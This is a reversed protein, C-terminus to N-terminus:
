LYVGIGLTSFGSEKALRSLLEITESGYGSNQAQNDIVFMGIWLVEVSPYGHYIDFFGIIENTLRNCISKFYYNEFRANEIPPLDGNEICNTIYDPSFTEGEVMLKDTWSDCIAQLKTIDSKETDRYYLNKYNSKTPLFQIM